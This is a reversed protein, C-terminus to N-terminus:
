DSCVLDSADMGHPCSSLRREALGVRYYNCGIERKKIARHACRKSAWNRPIALPLARDDWIAIPLWTIDFRYGVHYEAGSMM